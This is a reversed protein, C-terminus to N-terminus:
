LDTYAGVDPVNEMGTRAAASFTTDTQDVIEITKMEPGGGDYKVCASRKDIMDVGGIQYGIETPVGTVHAAAGQISVHYSHAKLATQFTRNNTDAIQPSYWFGATTYSLYCSHGPLLVKSKTKIVKWYNNFNPSDTLRLMPTTANYNFGPKSVDSIGNTFSLLPDDDTDIKPICLSIHVTVPVNYNNKANVSSTVSSFWVKKAYTGANFDVTIRTEEVSPNFYPLENVVGEITALSWANFDARAVTKQTSTLSSAQRERYIYTSLNSTDPGRKKYKYPQKARLKYRPRLRNRNAYPRQMQGPQFKRWGRKYGGRRRRNWKRKAFSAYGRRHRGMYRRYKTAAYGTAAATGAGYILWNPIGYPGM